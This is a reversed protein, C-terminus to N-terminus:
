SLRTSRGVGVTIRNYDSSPLGGAPIFIMGANGSFTVGGVPLSVRTRIQAASGGFVVGGSPVLARTRLFGATGGFSVGGTPVQIRTRLLPVTGSFAIGGSPTITYTTGGAAPVFTIPATGSFVTGGTPIQARTRLLTAVGSFTIGGSPIQARTRLLPVAGSFVIGGSPTITYTIGGGAAGASMMYRTEPAFLQWPNRYLGRIEDAFMAYNNIRVDQIMGSFQQTSAARRGLTHVAATEAYNADVHSGLCPEGNVYIEHTDGLGRKVYAIHTWTNAPLVGDTSSALLVGSFIASVGGTTAGGAGGGVELQFTNAANECGLVTARTNLAGSYFIWASFTFNNGTGLTASPWSIYDDSGDFYAAMGRQSPILKAGSNLAGIAGTVPDLTNGNLPWWLSLNASHRSAVNVRAVTQPQRTRPRSIKLV